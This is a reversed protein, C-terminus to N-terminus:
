KKCFWDVRKDGVKNQSALGQKNFECNEVTTNHCAPAVSAAFLVGLLSILNEDREGPPM